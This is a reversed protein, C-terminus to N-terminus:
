DDFYEFRRKITTVRRNDNTTKQQWNGKIDFDSYTITKSYTDGMLERSKVLRNEHDYTYYFFTTSSDAKSFDSTHSNYHTISKITGDDNYCYTEKTYLDFGEFWKWAASELLRNNLYINEIKKSLSGRHFREEVLCNNWEDYQYKIVKRGERREILNNDNDYIFYRVATDSLSNKEMPLEIRYHKVLNGREDYFFQNRRYEAGIDVLFIRTKRLKNAEYCMFIDQGLGLRRTQFGYKDFTHIVDSGTSNVGYTNQIINKIRGNLKDGEFITRDEFERYNEKGQVPDNDFANHESKTKQSCAAFVCLLLGVLIKRMSEIIDTKM